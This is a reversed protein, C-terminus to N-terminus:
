QNSGEGLVTALHDRRTRAFRALEANAPGWDPQIELATSYDEYAGRIDGLAERAAGRNFYAKHPERVGLGLAETIAAVAPGNQGLQVLAAGRNLHAEAHRPDLSLVADFDALAAQAERRRLHTVGRNVLLQLQALRELRRYNLAETCTEITGDSADGRLVWESCRRANPDRGVVTVAAPDTRQTQAAAAQAFATAAILVALAPIASSFRRPLWARSM